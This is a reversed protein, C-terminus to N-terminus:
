EIIKKISQIESFEEEGSTSITKLVYKGNRKNLLNFKEKDEKRLNVGCIGWYPDNIKNLYKNIYFAQHAKHFNGVGIHLFGIKCDERNFSPINLENKKM